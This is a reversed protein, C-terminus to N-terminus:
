VLLYLSCLMTLEDKTVVIKDLSLIYLFIHEFKIKWSFYKINLNDKISITSDKTTKCRSWDTTRNMASRGMKFTHFPSHNDQVENSQLVFASKPKM